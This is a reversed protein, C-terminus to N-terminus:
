ISSMCLKRYSKVSDRNVEGWLTTLEKDHWNIEKIGNKANYNRRSLEIHIFIYLSIARNYLYKKPNDRYSAVQPILLKTIFYPFEPYHAVFAMNWSQYLDAWQLPRPVTFLMSKKDESFKASVDEEQTKMAPYKVALQWGCFANDRFGNKLDELVAEIINIPVLFRLFGPPISGTKHYKLILSCAFEVSFLKAHEFLKMFRGFHEESRMKKWIDFCLQLVHWNDHMAQTLRDLVLALSIVDPLVQAGETELKHRLFNFHKHECKEFFHLLNPNSLSIEFIQDIFVEVTKIDINPPLLFDGLKELEADKWKSDIDILNLMLYYKKMGELIQSNHFNGLYHKLTTTIHQLIAFDGKNLRNPHINSFCVQASSSHEM